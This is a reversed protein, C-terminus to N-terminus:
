NSVRFLIPLKVETEALMGNGEVIHTMAIRYVSELLGADLVIKDIREVDPAIPQFVRKPISGM